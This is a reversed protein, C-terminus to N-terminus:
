RRILRRGFRGGGAPARDREARAVPEDALEVDIAVHAEAACHLALNV